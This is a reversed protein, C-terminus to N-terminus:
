LYRQLQVDHALIKSLFQQAAFIEDLKCALAMLVTSALSQKGLQELLILIFPLDQQSQQILVCWFAAGIQNGQM